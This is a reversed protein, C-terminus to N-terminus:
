SDLFCSHLYIRCSYYYVVETVPYRIVQTIFHVSSLRSWSEGWNSHTFPLWPQFLFSLSKNMKFLYNDWVMSSNEGSYLREWLSLYLLFSKAVALGYSVPYLFSSLALKCLFHHNLLTVTTCDPQVSPNVTGYVTVSVFKIPFPCFM